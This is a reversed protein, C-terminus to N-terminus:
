LLRFVSLTINRMRNAGFVVFADITLVAFYLGMHIRQTELSIIYKSAYDRAVSYSKFYWIIGLIYLFVKDPIAMSNALMFGM